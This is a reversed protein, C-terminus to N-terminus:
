QSGLAREDSLTGRFITGVRRGTAPADDWPEFACEHAPHLYAIIEVSRDSQDFIREYIYEPTCRYGVVVIQGQNRRPVSEPGADPYARVARIQNATLRKSRNM